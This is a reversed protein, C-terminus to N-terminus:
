GFFRHTLTQMGANINVIASSITGLLRTTHARTQAQSTIKIHSIAMRVEAYISTERRGARHTHQAHMWFAFMVIKKRQGSENWERWLRFVVTKWIIQKSRHRWNNNATGGDATIREDRTKRCALPVKRDGKRAENEGRNLEHSGDGDKSHRRIRRWMAVGKGHARLGHVGISQWNKLAEFVYARKGFFAARSLTCPTAQQVPGLLSWRYWIIQFASIARHNDISDFSLFRKKKDNAHAVRVADYEGRKTWSM